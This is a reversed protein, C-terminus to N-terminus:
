ELDINQIWKILMESNISGSIGEVDVLYEVVGDDTLGYTEKIGRMITKLYKEGPAKSVIDPDEWGGTFTFIPYGDEDDLYIIRRYWGGNIMSQGLEITKKLDILITNDEPERANEQRVVQIFQETTILYMRGLTKVSENKEARIFAVGGSEWISSSKSFYLQHPIIIKKDVLPPTKDTCGIFTKDAGDPRGGTIYCM